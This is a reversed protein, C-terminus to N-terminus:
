DPNEQDASTLDDAWYDGQGEGLPVAQVTRKELIQRGFGEM